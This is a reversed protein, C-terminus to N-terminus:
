SIARPAFFIFHSLCSERAQGTNSRRTSGQYIHSLKHLTWSFGCGIIPKGHIIADYM